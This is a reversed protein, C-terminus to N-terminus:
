FMTLICFNQETTFFAQSLASSLLSSQHGYFCPFASVIETLGRKSDVYSSSSFLLWFSMRNEQIYPEEFLNRFTLLSLDM